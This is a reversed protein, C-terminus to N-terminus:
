GRRVLWLRSTGSSPRPPPAPKLRLQSVHLKLLLTRASSKWSSGTPVSTAAAMGIAMGALSGAAYQGWWLAPWCWIAFLSCM